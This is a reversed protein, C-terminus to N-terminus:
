GQQTEPTGHPQLVGNLRFLDKLLCEIVMETLGATDGKVFVHEAGAKLCKIKTPEDGHGTVVIVPPRFRKVSEIVFDEDADPLGIDLITCNATPALELGIALTAAEHVTVRVLTVHASIRRELLAKLLQRDTQNDEVILIRLERDESAGEPRTRVSAYLEPPPRFSVSM